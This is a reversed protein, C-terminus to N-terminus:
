SLVLSHPLWSLAGKRRLKRDVKKWWSTGGVCRLGILALTSSALYRTCTIFQNLAAKKQGSEMWMFVRSWACCTLFIPTQIARIRFTIYCSWEQFSFGFIDSVISESWGEPITLTIKGQLLPLECFFSFESVRGM